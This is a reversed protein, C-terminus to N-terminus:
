FEPMKLHYGDSSAESTEVDGDFGNCGWIKINNKCIRHTFDIM